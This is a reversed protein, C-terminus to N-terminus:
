DLLWLRYHPTVWVVGVHDTGPPSCRLTIVGKGRLPGGGRYVRRPVPSTPSHRTVLYGGVALPLDEGIQTARTVVPVEGQPPLCGWPSASRNCEACVLCWRWNTALKSNRRESDSGSAIPESSCNTWTWDTYGM